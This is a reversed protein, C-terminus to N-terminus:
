RGGRLLLFILAIVTASLAIIALGSGDVRVVWAGQTMYQPMQYNYTDQKTGVSPADLPNDMM